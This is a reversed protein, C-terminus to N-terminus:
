SEMSTPTQRLPSDRPLSQPHGHDPIHLPNTSLVTTPVTIPDSPLELPRSLSFQRLHDDLLDNLLKADPETLHLTETILVALRSFQAALLDLVHKQLSSMQHTLHQISQDQRDIKEELRQQRTSM